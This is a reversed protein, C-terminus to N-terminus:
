VFSAVLLIAASTTLLAPCIKFWVVATRAGTLGTLVALVLLAAATTRYVWGHREASVALDVLFGPEAFTPM